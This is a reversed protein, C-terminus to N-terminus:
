RRVSRARRTRTRGPLRPRAARRWGPGPAPWAGSAGGRRPRPRSGPRLYPRIVTGGKHRGCVGASPAPVVKHHGCVGASPAPAVKHRGCVGASPAPAVKHRGCVGASPAPVVKHHGCVGASPTPSVEAPHRVRASPAPAVEAPHRVRASPTPFVEAPHRVRASPTPVVEAPRRVRASSTPIVEAPHRVWEPSTEKFIKLRHINILKLLNISKCMQYLFLGVCAVEGPYLLDAPAQLRFDDPLQAGADRRLSRRRLSRSRRRRCPTPSVCM